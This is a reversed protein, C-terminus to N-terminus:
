CFFLQEGERHIDSVLFMQQEPVNKICKRVSMIFSLM